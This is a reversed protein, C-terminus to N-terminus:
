AAKGIYEEDGLARMMRIIDRRLGKEENMTLTLEGQPRTLEGATHLLHQRLTGLSQFEWHAARKPVTNRDKERTSMQLERGLNHAFMGSLTFIQNGVLRRTAIYDLAAHQKGEGFIKEQSGRGNHFLLVSKASGAKNTAIVKYEFESDRPTFLDLQMPGKRQSPKRQRIFILRYRRNWKEPKWNSEFYSWKEDIKRWANCEEVKKKLLPFREFPVSCSFQARCKELVSFITENYFASDIRSEIIVGPLAERIELLTRAIFEPAGNSDHVNGSRHHFDYFVGLQSITAFLPYYSRAGKKQKNFGVAVGEAHGKTSQVSGDFDVTIRTLGETKIRLICMERLLSRLSVVSDMDADELNRSVTSADPLVSLGCVRTAMPDHRYYDLGRLRRFGLLIHVVLVFVVNGLGYIGQTDIHKFCRAIRSKFDLRRFLMQFVVLGGFSTLRRGEAFRVQPIKHYRKKIEAKRSKM